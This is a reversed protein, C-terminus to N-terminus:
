RYNTMRYRTIKSDRCIYRMIQIDNDMDFWRYRAIQLKDNSIEYDEFRTIQIEGNPIRWRGYRAEQIKDDTDRWRYRTMKRREGEMGRFKKSKKKGRFNPATIKFLRMSNVWIRIRVFLPSFEIDKREFLKYWFFHHILM